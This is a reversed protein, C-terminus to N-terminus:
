LFVKRLKIFLSLLILTPNVNQDIMQFSEICMKIASSLDKNGFNTSFKETVKIYNENGSIRTGFSIKSIDSFWSIYFNIYDRLINKDKKAVIEAISDTLEIRYRKKLATRIMMIANEQLKETDSSNIKQLNSVSGRALKVSLEPNESPINNENLYRKMESDSIKPFKIHQTRSIITPLLAEYNNTTLILTTNPNPEELTKLLANSAEAGMLHANSIIIIRHGSVSQTLKLKKKLERIQSIRIKNAKDLIIEHYYDRSKKEYESQIEAIQDKSLSDMPSDSKAGAAKKGTPMPVILEINPHSLINHEYKKDFSESVEIKGGSIIPDPCNVIKAFELAVAETGFGIEGSFLYGGAIRESAIARQLIEKIRTQDYTKNWPM